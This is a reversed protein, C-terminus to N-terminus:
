APSESKFEFKEIFMTMLLMGLFIPVAVAFILSYEWGPTAFLALTAAIAGGIAVLQLTSATSEINSMNESSLDTSSSSRKGSVLYSTDSYIASNIISEEIEVDPRLSVHELEGSEKDRRIIHEGLESSVTVYEEHTTEPESLPNTSRDRQDAKRNLEKIQPGDGLPSPSHSKAKM